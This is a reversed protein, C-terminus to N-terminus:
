PVDSARRAATRAAGREARWRAIAAHDGSLLVPPVERGRWIPPRTYNPASVEGEAAFSDAQLSDASGLVGPVLRAIADAMALAPLEGGTLVFDGLSLVETAYEEEFRHDLGEYHGCVFVVRRVNALRRAAAADFRRGGPETVVVASGDPVHDTGLIATLALRLPEPRLLMGPEGGYPTDDVKRHPDYAYDRPNEVRM